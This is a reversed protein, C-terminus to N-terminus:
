AWGLEVKIRDWEVEPWEHGYVLAAWVRWCVGLRMKARACRCLDWRADYPSARVLRDFVYYDDEAMEEMVVACASRYGCNSCTVWPVGWRGFRSWVRGGLSQSTKELYKACYGPCDVRVVHIRAREGVVSEWVRRLVGVDVWGSVVLHFHILGSRHLEIVRVGWLGMERFDRKMTVLHWARLRAENDHGVPFTLTVLHPDSIRKINEELCYRSRANM